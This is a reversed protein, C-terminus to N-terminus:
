GHIHATHLAQQRRRRGELAEICSDLQRRMANYRTYADGGQGRLAEYLVLEPEAQNKPYDPIPFGLSRLRGAAAFLALSAPTEREASLDLLGQRIWEAGPLDDTITM